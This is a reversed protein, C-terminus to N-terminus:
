GGLEVNRRNADKQDHRSCGGSGGRSRNGNLAHPFITHYYVGANRAKKVKENALTIPTGAPLFQCSALFGKRGAAPM